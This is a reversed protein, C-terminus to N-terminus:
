PTYAQLNYGAQFEDEKYLYLNQLYEHYRVWRIKRKGKGEGEDVDVDMEDEDKRKVLLGASGQLPQWLKAERQERM